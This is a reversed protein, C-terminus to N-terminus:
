FDRTSKLADHCTMGIVNSLPVNGDAGKIPEDVYRKCEVSTTSKVNEQVRAVLNDILSDSQYYM